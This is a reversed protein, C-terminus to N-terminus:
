FILDANINDTFNTMCVRAYVSSNDTLLKENSQEM